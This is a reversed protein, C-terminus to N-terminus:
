FLERFSDVTARKEPQNLIADGIGVREIGCDFIAGCNAENVGGFAFIPLPPEGEFLNMIAHLLRTTTAPVLGQNAFVPGVELFDVVGAKWAQLAAYAEEVSSVVVGLLSDSGVVKRAEVVSQIPVVWGDLAEGWLSTDRSLLLPRTSPDAIANPFVTFWQRLFNETAEVREQDDAYHFSLELADVNSSLLELLDRATMDRNVYTCLSAAALKALRAERLNVPAKVSQAQEAPKGAAAHAEDSEEASKEDDDEEEEDDETEEDTENEAGHDDAATAPDPETAPTQACPVNSDDAADDEDPEGHAPACAKAAPLETEDDDADSGDVSDLGLDTAAQYAIKELTYAAYRIQEWERALEPQVIKSFEELSRASEELRAFNAVLVDLLSARRYEGAGELSTGVDGLTDRARMRERRDLKDAAAAFRHRTEKLRTALEKSDGLFRAADEVVRIAERGRNAAADLIRYIERKSM